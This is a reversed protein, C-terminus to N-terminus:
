GVAGLSPLVAQSQFNIPHKGATDSVTVDITVAYVTQLLTQLNANPNSQKSTPTVPMTQCGAATTLATTPLTTPGFSIANSKSDIPDFLNNTTTLHDALVRCTTATAGKGATSAFQEEVLQNKSDRRLWLMTPASTTGPDDMSRNALDAYFLIDNPGLWEVRNTRSGATTGDAVRLYGTWAQVANRVSASSITRDTTANTSSAMQVFMTVTMAGIITSLGMAVLLETLTMGADGAARERLRGILRASM